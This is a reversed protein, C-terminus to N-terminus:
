RGCQAFDNYVKELKAFYASRDNNTWFQLDKVNQSFFKNFVFWTGLPVYTLNASTRDVLIQRKADMLNNSLAANTPSDVLALNVISHMVDSDMEALEDFEKDVQELDQLCVTKQAIFSNENILNKKLNTVANNLKQKSPDNFVNKATLISVRDEFWRKFDNFSIDDTDLNQPHIHELSNLNFGLKSALHFPFRSENQMNQLTMEVNFLLLIKRITDDENGYKIENLKKLTSDEKKATIRVINGIKNKLNDEFEIKLNSTYLNYIERVVENHKKNLYNVSLFIYLGIRHYFTRNDFWNRFVTYVKQIENWLFDIRQNISKLPNGNNDTLNGDAVAKCFINFLWDSDKKNWGETASYKQVEDIDEAVFSLVLELHLDKPEQEPALMGWFFKDQLSEEMSSWRLSRAFANAKEIERKSFEFRDCEFLLAKVLESATLGIKGYNLNNFTQISSEAATEYWIFRVDHLLSNYEDEDDPSYDEPLLLKLIENQSNPHNSFWERIIEYSKTMFYFDINDISQNAQKAFLKKQFFDDERSEYKLEYLGDSLSKSPNYPLETKGLDSLCCLVLFITTLRQQGDIVDFQDAQKTVALPQICYYGINQVNDTPKKPGNPNNKNWLENKKDSVEAQKISKSFDDLDNLLQEIQKREWRYGRQYSPIRFNMGMLDAVHKIELSM